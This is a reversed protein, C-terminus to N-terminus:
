WRRLRAAPSDARGKMFEDELPPGCLRLLHERDLPAENIWLKRITGDDILHEYM